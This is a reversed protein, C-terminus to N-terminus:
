VLSYLEMTTITKGKKKNVKYELFIGNTSLIIFIKQMRYIQRQKFIQNSYKVKNIGDIRFDNILEEANTFAYEVEGAEWDDYQARNM